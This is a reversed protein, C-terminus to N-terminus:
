NSVAIDRLVINCDRCRFKGRGQKRRPFEKFCGDCVWLWSANARRMVETFIRGLEKEPGDWADELRRFDSNHFFHGLAHLFEHYLVKQGYNWWKETLLSPHIDICKVDRPGLAPSNVDTDRRYRCVGHKQTANRRLLGIEVGKLSEVENKTFYRQAAMWDLVTQVLCEISHDASGPVSLIGDEASSPWDDITTQM